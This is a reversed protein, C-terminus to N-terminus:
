LNFIDFSLDEEMDIQSSLITLMGSVHSLSSDLSESLIRARLVHENLLQQTTQRANSIAIFGFIAVLGMLGVTVLASMKARLGIDFWKQVLLRETWKRIFSRWSALLITLMNM